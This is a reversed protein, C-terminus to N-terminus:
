TTPVLRYTRGAELDITVPGSGSPQLTAIAAGELMLTWRAPAGVATGRFLLRTPATVSVLYSGDAVRLAFLQRSGDVLDVPSGSAQCQGGIALLDARAFRYCTGGAEDGAITLAPDGSGGALALKSILASAHAVPRPSGDMRFMGMTDTGDRTDNLMWKLGGAYGDALLQLWTASEEIAVREDGIETARHGFEGLMVPKDPYLGRLATLQRRQDAIGDPGPPVYRHLSIVDLLKNSPLAAILPDHNGITVVAGPDGKRIAQVRPELWAKYTADLAELFPRWRAADPSGFFELDSRGTKRAWDTAELSLKYSMIWNNHYVYAEDESFREPIALPGRQGEDSARFAVIFHNAAQEGYRDLMRRSLLPPKADGPYSASQLMWFTPENRVDYALITKRGAYRASIAGDIRAVQSVRPEEWDGLTVILRLGYKDALDLVTDLKTWKEARVDRMLDLQVFLRLTNLGAGAARAFDAEVLQADFLDDAWWAWFDGRWSRAAPGQYSAGLVFPPWSDTRASVPGAAAGSATATAQRPPGALSGAVALALVLMLLTHIARGRRRGQM